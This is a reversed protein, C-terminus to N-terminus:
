FPNDPQKSESLVKKFEKVDIDTTYVKAGDAKAYSGYKIKGEIYVADGKLFKEYFWDAQKGWIKLKHWETNTQWQDFKDKYSENTALSVTCYSGNAAQGLVPDEGLNGILTVKNISIM